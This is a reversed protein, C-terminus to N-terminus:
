IDHNLLLGDYARGGSLYVSELLRMVDPSDFLFHLRSVTTMAITLKGNRAVVASTINAECSHSCSSGINAKQSADVFLLGKLLGYKCM